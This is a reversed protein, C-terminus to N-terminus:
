RPCTMIPSSSSLPSSLLAMVSSRRSRMDVVAYIETRNCTSIIINELISKQQQLTQMAQPLESEVFSLKERIEVPATRHNVGVVITHMPHDCREREIEHKGNYCVIEYKPNIIQSCRIVIFPEATRKIIIIM